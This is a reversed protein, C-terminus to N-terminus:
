LMKLPVSIGQRQVHRFWRLCNVQMKEKINLVGLCKEYKRTCGELYLWEDILANANESHM